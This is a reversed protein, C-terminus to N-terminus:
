AADEARGDTRSCVFGFVFESDDRGDPAPGPHTDLPTYRARREADTPLPDM